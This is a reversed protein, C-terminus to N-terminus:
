LHRVWCFWRFVKTAPFIPCRGEVRCAIRSANREICEHCLVLDCLPCYLGGTSTTGEDDYGGDYEVLEREADQLHVMNDRLAGSALVIDLVKLEHAGM